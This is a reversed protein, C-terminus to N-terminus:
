NNELLTLTAEFIWDKGKRQATIFHRAKKIVGKGTLIELDLPQNLLTPKGTTLFRSFGLHHGDRMREPIITTIMRGVLDKADWEFTNEFANNIKIIVGNHDAVVLPVAAQRTKNKM